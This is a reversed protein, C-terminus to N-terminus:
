AQAVSSSSLFPFQRVPHIKQPVSKSSGLALITAFVSFCLGQFDPLLIAFKVGAQAVYHPEIELILYIFINIIFHMEKPQIYPFM